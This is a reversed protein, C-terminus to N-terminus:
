IVDNTNKQRAQRPKYSVYVCVCKVDVSVAVGAGAGGDHMASFLMYRVYPFILM